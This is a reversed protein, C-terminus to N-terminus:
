RVLHLQRLVMAPNGGDPDGIEEADVAQANQQHQEGGQQGNEDHHTREVGDVLHLLRIVAAQQEQFGAHQADEHRQIEEQEVDEPLDHQHRHVEQDADPPVPPPQIRCDLEEEVRQEARHEHQQADQREVEEVAVAIVAGAFQREVDDLQDVVHPHRGFGDEDPQGGLVQDEQRQEQAEGDLHRHEREVGPQGVRMGVRRGRAADHQGAHQQLHAGVAKHAEAQRQQRRGAVVHDAEHGRQGDDADQVAGQHGHRLAVHLAEDRIGADAVHAEQHEADEGEVGLAHGAADDLHDVVTDAGARQEQQDADDVLPAVRAFDRREAAQRRRHGDKRHEEGDGHERGDAQRAQVAEHALEEDEDAHELRVNGVGRQRHEADDQARGVHQPEVLAGHEALGRRGFVLGHLVHIEALDAVHQRQDDQHEPDAQVRARVEVEHARGHIVVDGLHLLAVQGLAM